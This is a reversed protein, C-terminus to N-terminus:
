RVKGGWKPAPSLWKNDIAHKLIKKLLAVQEVSGKFVDEWKGGIGCFAGIVRAYEEPCHQVKDHRGMIQLLEKIMRHDARMPDSPRIVKPM